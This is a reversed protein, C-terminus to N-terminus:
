KSRGLTRADSRGLTWFLGGSVLLLLVFGALFVELGLM